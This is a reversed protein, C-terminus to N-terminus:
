LIAPNWNSSKNKQLTRWLSSTIGQWSWLGLLQSSPQDNKNDPDHVPSKCEYRDGSPIITSYSMYIYIHGPWGPKSHLLDAKEQRFTDLMTATSPGAIHFDEPNINTVQKLSKCHPGFRRRHLFRPSRKSAPGWWRENPFNISYQEQQRMQDLHRQMIIHHSRLHRSWPRTTRSTYM